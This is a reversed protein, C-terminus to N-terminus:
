ENKDLITLITDSDPDKISIVGKGNEDTWYYVLGDASSTPTTKSCAQVLLSYSTGTPCQVWKAHLTHSATPQATFDFLNDNEDYWGAFDYNAKTPAM